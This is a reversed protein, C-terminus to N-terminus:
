VALKRIKLSYISILNTGSSAIGSTMCDLYVVALSSSSKVKILGRLQLDPTTYAMSKEPTLGKSTDLEPITDFVTEVKKHELDTLQAVWTQCGAAMHSTCLETM